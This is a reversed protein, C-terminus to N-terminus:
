ITSILMFGTGSTEIKVIEVKTLGGNAANQFYKQTSTDV